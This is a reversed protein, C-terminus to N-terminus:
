GRLYKVLAAIALVLAVLVLLGFVGMAWTGGMMGDFGMMEIRRRRSAAGM